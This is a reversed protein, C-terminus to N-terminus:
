LLSTQLLRFEEKVKDLTPILRFPLQLFPTQQLLVYFNTEKLLARKMSTVARSIYVFSGKYLTNQTVYMTYSNSVSAFLFYNSSCNYVTNLSIDWRYCYSCSLISDAQSSDITNRVFSGTTYYNM